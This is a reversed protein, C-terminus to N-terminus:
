LSPDELSLAKNPFGNGDGAPLASATGAHWGAGRV